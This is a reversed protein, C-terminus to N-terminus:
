SQAQNLQRRGPLHLGPLHRHVQNHKPRRRVSVREKLVSQAQLVAQLANTLCRLLFGDRM